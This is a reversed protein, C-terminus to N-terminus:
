FDLTSASFVGPLEEANERTRDDILTLDHGNVAKEVDSLTVGDATTLAGNLTDVFTTYERDVFQDGTNIVTVAEILDRQSIEVGGLLVGVDERTGEVVKMPATHKHVKHFNEHEWIEKTMALTQDISKDVILSAQAMEIQTGDWQAGIGPDLTTVVTGRTNKQIGVIYTTVKAQEAAELAEKGAEIRELIEKRGGGQTVSANILAHADITPSGMEIANVM